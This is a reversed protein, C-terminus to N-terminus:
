ATEDMQFRSPGPSLIPDYVEPLDAFEDNFGIDAANVGIAQAWAQRASRRRTAFSAGARGGKGYSVARPDGAARAHELFGKVSRISCGFRAAIWPATFGGAWANLVRERLPLRAM